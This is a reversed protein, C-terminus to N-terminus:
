GALEAVSQVTFLLGFVLSVVFAVAHAHAFTWAKASGLARDARDRAVLYLLLTPWIAVAALLTFLVVLGLEEATGLGSGAITLGALVTIALRKPLVVFVLGTSLAGRPGIGELRGLFAKARGGGSELADNGPREYWAALLLVLGLVLKLVSQLTRDGSEPTLLGALLAVGVCVAGVGVLFGAIFSIGNVVGRATSVLVVTALFASVSLGAALGYAVIESAAESM